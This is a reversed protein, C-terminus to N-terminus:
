YNIMIKSRQNSRLKRKRRRMLCYGRNQVKSELVIKRWERRDTLIAQRKGTGM